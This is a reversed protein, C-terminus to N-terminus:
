AAASVSAPHEVEIEVGDGLFSLHDLVAASEPLPEAYGWAVDELLEDGVRASCYSAESKYPCHTVKDTPGLLEARVDARPIYYRTPLSTEFLLKPRTTEALLEGGATVRVRRSSSRVDVRHYPRAPARRTSRGRAAVPRRRGLLDVRLGEALASARRAGPLGWVAKEAVRGGARLSWYSADGKFPCHTAHSTSEIVGPALDEEPLYLVPPINSEFLLKCRESDAVAEGGLLARMRRPYDEFLLLHEPGM